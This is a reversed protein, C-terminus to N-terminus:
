RDSTALHALVVACIGFALTGVQMWGPLAEDGHTLRWYAALAFLAILVTVSSIYLTLRFPRKPRSTDPPKPAPKRSFSM